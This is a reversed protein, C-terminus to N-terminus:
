FKVFQSEEIAQSPRTSSTKKKAVPKSTEFKSVSERSSVNFFGMLQQLQEASASMEEATAALEESSSANQQTIDSLQTMANNIQGAGSAQEESAATIEQVLDSTKNINPVMEELLKGAKEALGVSSKAVEGIEQAAVQSREALKRVEAAVVAFGKGHEGARAAEIAANLALLNTQYAIDDIIGIKDAISKMASVTEKVAEGGENADKAAKGAIGETVKANETNQTISASMQEVSASTQEVSAAQENTAQSMSQATASVEESASAINTAAANVETIVQSLKAITNNVTQKFDDLQGKYDGVVTRTLDGKEMEGLVAVAENVPLIINDLTNNIGQVLKRFDGQHSAADARVNLKGDAAAQILMDIDAAVAKLNSRVQEITDNIFAKKGPLKEMPADFNGEGFGKICAMALKKVAIHGGVMTNVGQAMVKFDGKFNHTNMVVDIDGADHERSMNNMDAIFTKLNGRMTEITDNIFAKKGPLKEMPADFNGEGFEKICTMAKKKVGIHNGVMVNVGDAMMKFDGKFKEIDIIVDIDGADHERSMRNVEDLLTTVMTILGNLNDRINRYEGKYETKIVEPIVGKAIQDIYNSTIAIPGSVADLVANFAEYANKAGGDPLGETKMRLGLNGDVVEQVIQSLEKKFQEEATRDLWEVVAGLRKGDKDFVPAAKLNFRREGVTISTSFTDRFESLMRRQHSPNKHFQDINSGILRHANFGPFVKRLDAEAEAMMQTLAPNVYVINFSADAIMMCTSVVNLATELQRFEQSQRHMEDALRQQHASEEVQRTKLKHLAAIVPSVADAGVAVESVDANNLIGDVLGMVQSLRTEDVINKGLFSM